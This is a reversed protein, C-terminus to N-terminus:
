KCKTNHRPSQEVHGYPNGYYQVSPEVWDNWWEGGTSDDQVDGYPTSAGGYYAKPYDISNLQENDGDYRNRENAELLALLALM